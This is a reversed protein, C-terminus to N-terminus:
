KLDSEFKSCWYAGEIGRSGEFTFHHESVFGQKSDTSVARENGIYVGIHKHSENDFEQEAWILVCGPHLNDIDIERWGCQRLDEETSNVTLHPEKILNFGHLVTSVFFGCALEGGNVLDKKEGKVYAYFNRFMKSGVANRVVALYTDYLIPIPKSDITEKM